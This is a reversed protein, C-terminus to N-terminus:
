RNIKAHPRQKTYGFTAIADDEYGIFIIEEIQKHNFPTVISTDLTGM